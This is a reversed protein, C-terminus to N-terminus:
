GMKEASTVQGGNKGGTSAPAYDSRVADNPIEMLGFTQNIMNAPATAGDICCKVFRSGDRERFGVKETWRCFLPARGGSRDISRSPLNRCSGGSLGSERFTMLQDAATPLEQDVAVSIPVILMQSEFTVDSLRSVDTTEFVIFWNPFPARGVTTRICPM